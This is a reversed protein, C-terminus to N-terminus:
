RAPLAKLNRIAEVPSLVTASGECFYDRALAAHQRNMRNDIFHVWDARRSPQWSRTATQGLAYVRREWTACRLGEYTVNQAGGPTTVVLTYRVVGDRDVSISAPDILFRNRSEGAAEFPLLRAEDPYAPFTTVQHEQWVDAPDDDLALAANSLLCALLCLPLIRM